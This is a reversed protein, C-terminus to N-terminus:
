TVGPPSWPGSGPAGPPPPPAASGGPPGYGGPPRYGGPPGHGGPPGYGGAPAGGPATPAAGPPIPPYGGTHPVTLAEHQRRSLSRVMAIALGAGVALVVYGAATTRDGSRVVDYARDFDRIFDGDSPQNANGVTSIVTGIAMVVAWVVVLGSGRGDRGPAARPDSPRSSQHMEVAPLVANACPIFWGGIAWGPGLGSPGRLARANTSHRHQWVIFVVGTALTGVLYLAGIAGLADEASEVASYTGPGEVFDGIASARNVRAGGHALSLLAMVALLVSLATALGALARPVPRPAEPVGVTWAGGPRFPGAAPPPPPPPVGPSPPSAPPPPAGTSPQNSPLAGPDPPYTSM